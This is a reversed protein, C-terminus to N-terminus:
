LGKHGSARVDDLKNELSQVNASPHQASTSPPSPSEALELGQEMEGPTEKETERRSAV